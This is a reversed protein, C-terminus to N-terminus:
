QNANLRKLLEQAQPSSVLKQIAQQDNLIKQLTAADNPNMNQLLGQLNGAQAHKQIEEPRKGLHQALLNLLMQKDNNNSPM